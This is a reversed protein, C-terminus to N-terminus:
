PKDRWGKAVLLADELQEVITKDTFSPDPLAPYKGNPDILTVFAEGHQMDLNIEWGPPLQACIKNITEIM